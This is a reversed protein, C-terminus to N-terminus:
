KQCLINYNNDNIPKKVKEHIVNKLMYLNADNEVDILDILGQLKNLIKLDNELDQQWRITDMDQILVKTKGGVLMDELETDDIEIDTINLDLDENSNNNKEILEINHEILAVLKDLTLRFSYISSELRKLLNVRMLYILSQERDIQKFISGTGTAMDYKDEYLKMKEYRVYTLPTYSALTLLSIEDYIHSIDKVKNDRDLEARITKPKLRDPFKGVETTDYYKEIHKRSRAITVMDLIKFYSGDLKELLANVDMDDVHGDKIWKSFKSQTERMVNTISGIGYRSFATDEGETIFSIQNKLDNLKNNVPTASLMLVKTRINARIVDNMLRKYRTLGKKNPNNRFNHSEDIVVLDYNGWNVMELDIDGTYGKERSLDTHNLVDYNFRDDALLNRKDNINYLTWNERLKKPALVLIRSNRLQYYKMVALAEFTKGLGVSDAIICGGYTEIKDIAGIVADKQFNYLFSWIKSNKFGTKELQKEARENVTSHQFLNRISYKYIDEPTIRKQKKKYFSNLQRNLTLNSNEWANNFLQLYQNSSDDLESILTPTQTSIEGTAQATLNLPTLTFVKTEHGQKLIIINQNGIGGQRIQSNDRITEQVQRTKFNRDLKFNLISESYDQLFKEDNCFNVLIKLDKAKKLSDLISYIGYVSFFDINLFVETQNNILDNLHKHLLITKNDIIQM